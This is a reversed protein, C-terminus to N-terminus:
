KDKKILIMKLTTRIKDQWPWFMAIVTGEKYEKKFLTQERRIGGYDTTLLLDDKSPPSGAPKVAPGFINSFIKNWKEIERNYFVLWVYEDTICRKEDITLDSYKELISKLTIM